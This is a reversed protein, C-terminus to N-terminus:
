RDELAQMVSKSILEATPLNPIQSQVLSERAAKKDGPSSLLRKLTDFLEEISEPFEVAGSDLISQYHSTHYSYNVNEWRRKPPTLSFKICVAPTDFLVADLAITSAHNIVVDSYQMLEVFSVISAPTGIAGTHEAAFNDDAYHFRVPINDNAYKEIYMATYPSHPHFRLILITNGLCGELIAEVLLDIFLPEDPLFCNLTCAYTVIHYNAPVQLSDRFSYNDTQSSLSRYAQYQPGGVIDIHDRDMGHLTEAEHAMQENWVLLRDPKCSLYGQAPLNDWSHVLAVIPIGFKKCSYILEKDKQVDISAVLFVETNKFKDLFFHKPISYALDRLIDTEFNDRLRNVVWGGIHDSFYKITNTSRKEMLVRDAITPRHVQYFGHYEWEDLWRALTGRCKPLAWRPYSWSLHHITKTHINPLLKLPEEYYSLITLDFDAQLQSLVPGFLLNRVTMGLWATLTLNPM